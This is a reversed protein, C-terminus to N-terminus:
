EVITVHEPISGLGTVAQGHWTHRKKRKRKHHTSESQQQQQQQLPPLRFPMREYESFDQTTPMVRHSGLPRLLALPPPPTRSHPRNQPFPSPPRASPFASSESPETQSSPLSPFPCSEQHFLQRSTTEPLSAFHRDELAGPRLEGISSPLSNPLTPPTRSQSDNPMDEQGRIVSEDGACSSRRPTSCLLSEMLVASAHSSNLDAPSPELVGALEQNGGGQSHVSIGRTSRFSCGLETAAEELESAHFSAELSSHRKAPSNSSHMLTVHGELPVPTYPPPSHPQM